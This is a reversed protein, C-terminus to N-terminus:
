RGQRFVECRGQAAKLLRFRARSGRLLFPTRTAAKGCSDTVTNDFNGLNPLAGQRM